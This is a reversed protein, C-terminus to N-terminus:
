NDRVVAVLSVLTATATTAKATVKFQTAGFLPFADFTNWNSSGDTPSNTDVYTPTNVLAGTSTSKIPYQSWHQGNDWSLYYLFTVKTASGPNVVFYLTLQSKKMLKLDTITILAASEGTTISTNATAQGAITSNEYAIDKM